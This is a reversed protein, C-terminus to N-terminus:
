RQPCVTLVQEAMQAAAILDDRDRDNYHEDTTTMNKHSLQVSAMELGGQKRVAKGMARRFAHFGSARPIRPVGARQLAPYLVDRLVYEPGLPRRDYESRYFVFDSLSLKRQNLYDSLIPLLADQIYKQHVEGTKTSGQLRGRWLNDRFMIMRNQLDIDQRRLGLLEGIRVSTLALCWFLAKHNEPIQELVSKANEPTWISMKRPKYLPRHLRPRIPNAQILEHELAVQFMLKLFHYVNLRTKASLGKGALDDIFMTIDAPNIEAMKMNGLAPEIHHKWMSEQGYRTSAKIGDKRWTAWLGDKYEALTLAKKTPTHPVPRENVEKMWEDLARSAAKKSSGEQWPRAAKKWGSPASDDRVWYRIRFMKRGNKGRRWEIWGEQYSPRNVRKEKQLTFVGTMEVPNFM